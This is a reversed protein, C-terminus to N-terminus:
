SAYKHLTELIELKRGSYMIFETSMTTLNLITKSKMEAVEVNKDLLSM